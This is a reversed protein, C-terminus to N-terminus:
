AGFAPTILSFELPEAQSPNSPIETPHHSLLRKFRTKEVVYEDRISQSKYVTHQAVLASAWICADLIALHAVRRWDPVRYKNSEMGLSSAGWYLQTTECQKGHGSQDLWYVTAVSYTRKRFAVADPQPSPRVGSQTPQISGGQMSLEGSGAAIHNYM